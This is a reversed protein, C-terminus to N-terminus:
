MRQLRRNKVIYKKILMFAIPAVMMSATDMAGGSDYSQSVEVAGAKIREATLGRQRAQVTSENLSSVLFIAQECQAQKVDSPMYVADNVDLDINRPFSLAQNTTYPTILCKKLTSATSVDAETSDEWFGFSEMIMVAQKLAAEKQGDSLADWAASKVSDWHSTFYTDADALSIYSDSATGALTTVLAM